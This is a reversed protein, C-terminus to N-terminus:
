RRRSLTLLLIQITQALTVAAVISGNVLAQYPTNSPNQQQCSHATDKEGKYVCVITCSYPIVAYRIYSPASTIFAFLVLWYKNDSTAVPLIEPHLSEELPYLTEGSTATGLESRMQHRTLSYFYILNM